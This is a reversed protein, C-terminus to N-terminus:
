DGEEEWTMVVAPGAIYDGPDLVDSVLATAAVNRELQAFKGEENIYMVRGDSMPVREIYGGVLRRLERLTLTSGNM